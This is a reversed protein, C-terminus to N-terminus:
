DVICTFKRITSPHHRHTATQNFGQQAAAACGPLLISGPQHFWLGSGSLAAQVLCTVTVGLLKTTPGEYEL